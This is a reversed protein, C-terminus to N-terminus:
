RPVRTVFAVLGADYLRQLGGVVRSLPQEGAIQQPTRTGDCLELLDRTAANIKLATRGRNPSRHFCVLTAKREVTGNSLLADVDHDFSRVRIHNSRLPKLTDVVDDSAVPRGALCDPSAFAPETNLPDDSLAWLREREYFAVSAALDPEDVSDTAFAQAVAATPPAPSESPPSALRRFFAEWGEIFSGAQETALARQHGRRGIETALDPREVVLRLCAALEAHDRPDVVVVADELHRLPTPYQNKDAIEGSVVLCTGCALVERPITPGHIAIPFDRELFCVATCARIFGPVRWSPLFPLRWTIDDLGAATLAAAFTEDQWGHIMALLNFELGDRRLDGLAAVLDFSGKFVGLKGYVGVTPRTPDYRKGPRSSVSDVDLPPAEPHFVDTRVSFPPGEHLRDATVGMGVFRRLLPEGTIVADADKLIEQYATALDPSRMLRELDSGAHMVALPRKTWRCALHAAVAYPEFYYALV